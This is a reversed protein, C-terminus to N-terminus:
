PLVRQIVWEGGKWQALFFEYKPYCSAAMKLKPLADDRIHAGKVEWFVTVGNGNISHYDPTYRLGNALRLTVAEFRYEGIEGTLKMLALHDREFRTETKNPTAGSQRIIGKISPTTARTPTPCPREVTAGGISKIRAGPGLSAQLEEITSLRKSMKTESSVRRRKRSARRASAPAIRPRNTADMSVNNNM